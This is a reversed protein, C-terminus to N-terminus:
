AAVSVSPFLMSSAIIRGRDDYDGAVAALTPWLSRLNFALTIGQVPHQIVGNEVWYGAAGRSYDGTVANVGQGMMETILLGRDMQRLLDAQSGQGGPLWLNRTGGSNATSVMSLRRAAYVDLVWSCVRGQQIFSQERTALGDGDIPSSGNGSRLHPREQLEAWEPLVQQDMADILWSSQRWIANGNLASSLTGILGQAMRPDFVVPYHGTEIPRANLRALTREAAEHGIQEPAQLQAPNRRSDYAYDRQMGESDKALVVASLSHQSGQSLAMLGRSNAHVRVSRRTSLDGGESNVIGPHSLAAAEAEGALQMARDSDIPWDFDLELDPIERALQDAEALGSYPDPQTYKAIDMAAQLCNQLAAPSIDSTSASGKCGDVWVTVGVSGDKEFELVEPEGNRVTVSLGQSSGAGLDIDDAGLTKAQDLLLEAADQLRKQELQPNWDVSSSTTM